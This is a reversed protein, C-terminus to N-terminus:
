SQKYDNHETAIPHYWKIFVIDFSDAHKTWVRDGSSECRSSRTTPFPAPSMQRVGSAGLIAPIRFAPRWHIRICINACMHHIPIAHYPQVNQDNTIKLIKSQLQKLKWYNKNELVDRHLVGFWDPACCLNARHNVKVSFARGDVAGVWRNVLGRDRGLHVCAELGAFILSSCSPVLDIACFLRCYADIVQFHIDIKPPWMQRRVRLWRAALHAGQRILASERLLQESPGLLSYILYLQPWAWHGCYTGWGM